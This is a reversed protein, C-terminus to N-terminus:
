RGLIATLVTQLRAHHSYGQLCRQRGAEGIALREADHRLYYDIKRRLEEPSAYFEAEAGERFLARHEETREALMFQGCAPIEISRATSTDGFWQSLLCLNIKAGCLAKAYDEGVLHPSDAFLPHGRHRAREWGGGWIKIRYGLTSLRLLTEERSPEWHGVFGVDGGFREREQPTLVMPRHIDPDFGKGALEVRRAGCRRLWAVNHPKTTVHADYLSIAALYHRSQNGFVMQNDPSFHILLPCGDRRIRELTEPWVALGKDIWLVDPHCTGAADLLLRNIRRVAPGTYLSNAVVSPWFPLSGMWPFLDVTEIRDALQRLSKLRSWSTGGYELQGVVLIRRQALPAHVAPARVAAQADPRQITRVLLAWWWCGATYRVRCRVALLRVGEVIWALM